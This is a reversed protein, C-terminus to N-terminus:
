MAATFLNGRLARVRSWAWSSGEEWVLPLFEEEELFGGALALREAWRLSELVVGVTAVDALESAFPASPPLSGPSEPASPSPPTM